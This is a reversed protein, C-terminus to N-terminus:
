LDDGIARHAEPLEGDQVEHRVRRGVPRRRRRPEVLGGERDVGEAGQDLTEAGPETGVVLREALRQALKPEGVDLERARCSGAFSAWRPSPIMVTGDSISCYASMPSVWVAAGTPSSPDLSQSQTGRKSEAAHKAASRPSSSLPRQRM